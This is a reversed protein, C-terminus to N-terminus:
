VNFSFYYKVCLENNYIIKVEQLVLPFLTYILSKGFGTPLLACLHDGEVLFKICQIQQDKLVMSVDYYKHLVKNITDEIENASAM